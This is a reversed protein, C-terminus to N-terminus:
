TRLATSILRHTQSQCHARKTREATKAQRSLRHAAGKERQGAQWAVFAERKAVRRQRQDEAMESVRDRQSKLGAIDVVTPAVFGLQQALEDDSPQLPLSIRQKTELEKRRRELMIKQRVNQVEFRCLLTSSFLLSRSSSLM